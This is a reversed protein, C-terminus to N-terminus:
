LITQVHRPLLFKLQPITEMLSAQPCIWSANEQNCISVTSDLGSHADDDM